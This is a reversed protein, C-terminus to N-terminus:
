LIQPPACIQFMIICAKEWVESPFLSEGTAFLQCICSAILAGCGDQRCPSGADLSALSAEPSM